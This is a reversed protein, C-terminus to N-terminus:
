TKTGDGAKGGEAHSGEGKAITYLGESHSAKGVADTDIGEAHAAEHGAFTRIGEAHGGKYYAVSGGSITVDTGAGNTKYNKTVRAKPDGYDDVVSAGEAHTGAADAM